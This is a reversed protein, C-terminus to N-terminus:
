IKLAKRIGYQKCCLLWSICLHGCIQSDFCQEADNRDSEVIKRKKKKKNLSKLISDSDRAFSDYVYITSPTIYIGCWHIGFSKSNGTNLVQYGNKQSMKDHSHCGNWNNGFLRQCNQDITSDYLAENGLKKIIQKSYKKFSKEIEKESM